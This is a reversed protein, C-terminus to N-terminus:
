PARVRLPSTWALNGDRFAVRAWYAGPGPLALTERFEALDLPTGVRWLFVDHEVVSELPVRRSAGVAVDPVRLDASASRKRLAFAREAPPADWEVDIALECVQLGTGVLQARALRGADVVEIEFGTDGSARTRAALVRGGRPELEFPAGFSDRLTVVYLEHAAAGAWRHVVEGDRLLEVSAVHEPGRASIELLAGPAPVGSSGMRLAGIRLDVAAPGVCAYTERSRLADFLADREFAAARVGALGGRTSNHDSSAILGLDLGTALAPVLASKAAVPERTELPAGRGEFSGRAGQYIEALRVLSPDALDWRVANRALGFMHPILFSDEARAPAIGSGLRDFRRPNWEADRVDRFVENYHGRGAIVRELGAFVVLRGPDDHRLADRRALWWSWETLHQHHDTIAVFDLAGPGRAYRYADARTGDTATACRSAHTHRHLDGFRARPDGRWTEDAAPVEGAPTPAVATLELNAAGQAAPLRALGIRWRGEVSDEFPRTGLVRRARGDGLAICVFGGAPDALLVETADVGGDFAYEREASAAGFSYV